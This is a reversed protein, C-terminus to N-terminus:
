DVFGAACCLSLYGSAMGPMWARGPSHQCPRGGEANPHIRSCHLMLVLMGAPLLCGSCHMHNHGALTQSSHGVKHQARAQDYEVVSGAFWADNAEWYVRLFRGVLGEPTLRM